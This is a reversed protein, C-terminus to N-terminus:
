HKKSKSSHSSKGRSSQKNVTAWARREAEGKSVGRSEYSKEIDHAKRKQKSSYSSKDGRAMKGGPEPQHSRRASPPLRHESPARALPAIIAGLSDLPPLPRAHLSGDGPALNYQYVM